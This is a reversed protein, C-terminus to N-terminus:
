NAAVGPPLEEDTPKVDKLSGLKRVQPFIWAIGLVVGITAIGGAVVSIVPGFIAATVGSELGGLENSSGIFVQNVASVRGRMSDPTLTQVLTHRVVVSVSDMAGALLLMSFSLIYNGSLGFVIMAGGFAAVALLLSRGAHKMPPLHAIVMAGGISGIAGAATLWAMGLTGVGLLKAFIPLLYTAGGFLVAFMDLLMVALMTKTRFVFRVGAFLSALSPGTAAKATRYDPLLFTLMMCCGMCIAATLLAAQASSYYVIFGAIVPGSVSCTEWITSNWTIANSFDKLPVLAPMLSARAPRHFTMAVADAFMIAYLWPLSLRDFMALMAM